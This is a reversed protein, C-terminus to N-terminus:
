EQGRLAPGNPAVRHLLWRRAMSVMAAAASGAGVLFVTWAFRSPVHDRLQDLADGTAPVSLAQARERLAHAMPEEVFTYLMVVVASGLLVREGMLIRAKPDRRRAELVLMGFLVMGVAVICPALVPGVWPVPVLFLIDWELLTDPWGLVAKLFVYYFLDWVGFCFVFWAFRDLANRTVMAAPALLMIMTALERFLETIAITRDIPVLPFRFGQPYYLARLDVVVASELFAMAIAFVTMWPLLAYWTREPPRM